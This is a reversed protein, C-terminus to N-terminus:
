AQTGWVPSWILIPGYHGKSTTFYPTISRILGWVGLGRTVPESVLAGHWLSLCWPGTDCAWVGLGRTVPARYLDRVEWPWLCRISLSTTFCHGILWYDIHNYVCGFRRVYLQCHNHLIYRNLVHFYGTHIELYMYWKSWNSHVSVYM